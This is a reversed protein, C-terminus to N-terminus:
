VRDGAMYNYSTSTAVIKWDSIGGVRKYIYLMGTSIIITILSKKSQCVM